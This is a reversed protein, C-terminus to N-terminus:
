HPNLLQSLDFAYAQEQLVHRCSNCSVRSRENIPQGTCLTLTFSEIPPNGADDGAGIPLLALKLKGGHLAIIRRCMLWRVQSDRWPTPAPKDDALAQAPVAEGARRDAIAGVHGTIIVFDGMQHMHINIQSRAPASGRLAELLVRLAYQMWAAHGYVTGQTGGEQTMFFAAQEPDAQLTAPPLAARVLEGLNLREDAFVDDRQMLLSLDSLERLLSEVRRSQAAIAVTDHSVGEVQASLMSRLATIQSRAEDGLLRLLNQEAAPWQAWEDVVRADGKGPVICIANGRRGDMMLWAEGPHEDDATKGSWLGLKVPLKVRGRSELDLLDKLVGQMAQAQKLWPGAAQNHSLVQAKRDILIVGEALMDLLPLDFNQRTAQSM